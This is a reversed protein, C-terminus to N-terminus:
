NASEGIHKRVRHISTGISDRPVKLAKMMGIRAFMTPGNHQVVLLLAEVANRWKPLEHEAKPCPKFIGRPMVSPSLSGAARCRYRSM